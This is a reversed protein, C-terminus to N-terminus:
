NWKGASGYCELICEDAANRGTGSELSLYKNVVGSWKRETRQRGECPFRRDGRCWRSGPWSTGHCWWRHASLTLCRRSRGCARVCEGLAAVDINTDYVKMCFQVFSIHVLYFCYYICLSHKIGLALGFGLIAVLLLSSQGSHGWKLFMDERQVRKVRVFIAFFLYVSAWACRATVHACDPWAALASPNHLKLGCFLVNCFIDPQFGCFQVALYFRM